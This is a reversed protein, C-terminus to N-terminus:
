TRKNQKHQGTHLYRGQLPNIVRGIIGVTQTFIIVSNFLLGPGFLPSYFWQHIFSYSMRSCMAINERVDYYIHVIALPHRKIPHPAM